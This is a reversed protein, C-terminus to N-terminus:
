SSGCSGQVALLPLACTVCVRFYPHQTKSRHTLPRNKIEQPRDMGIDLTAADTYVGVRKEVDEGVSVMRTLSQLRCNCTGTERARPQPRNELGVM